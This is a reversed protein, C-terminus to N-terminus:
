NGVIGVIGAIKEADIAYIRQGEQLALRLYYACRDRWRENLNQDKYLTLLERKANSNNIRYLGTLCLSRTDDDDTRSFIKALAESTKGKAAAGHESIFTLSRNVAQIDSDIEPKASTRAVQRLFVEHFDLQRRIDLGARLEPTDKERHTYLGFSFVHAMAFFARDKSGHKLRVMEERRDEAIKAALGDPRKAYALLNDYQSRALKAEVDTDNELPNLTASEIRHAIENRFEPDFSADLSLLLKLQSYSRLRSAQNLDSGRRGTAFEYIFRGFFYPLGSFRSLSLVNSTIDNLVRKSMERMKPNGNDRFDVLLVPIKPHDLGYLALPIMTRPTANPTDPEVVRNEADYWRVQRYGKWNKLKPDTWPNKINLFRSDFKKGKNSEIDTTASWLLAHRSSGDPMEMPEFYLGQAEAYQRLLEWNHGRFDRINALEKEYVRGLNESQMHWGFTKDTLSLRAQIEKLESDSLLKEGEVEQYLSLVALAAAVASRRYDARNQSYQLASAKVGIGFEGLVLKKFVIWFIKNWIAKDSAQVDILPPPPATGVNNKNTTRTYLFPVFASIKQSLSARTYTLLWVYRLRDNETKNDGLTDRLISVLPIEDIQGNKSTNSGNLRAIITIIEAGGAVRVKEVRFDANAHALVDSVDKAQGSIPDAPRESVNPVQAPFRLSTALIGLVLFIVVIRDLKEKEFTTRLLNM